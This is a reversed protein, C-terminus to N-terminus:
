MPPALGNKGFAIRAAEFSGDPLKTAAAIFVKVGPKLDPFSGPEFAVIQTNPAVEVSKEGDKYQVKLKQGDVGKVQQAVSGNTMTSAPELDWPRHGEALGRMAEPFIHVELARQGGDPQPRGTVGIYLGPKIDSLSAAVVAMVPANEKLQITLEAGERTKIAIRKGEIREITGRVRRPPEQALSYGLNLLSLFIAAAISGAFHRKM